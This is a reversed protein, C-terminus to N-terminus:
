QAPYRAVFRRLAATTKERLTEILDTLFLEAVACIGPATNESNGAVNLVRINRQLVWEAIYGVDDRDIVLIGSERLVHVRHVIVDGFLRDYKNIANLTCIEGPSQFNVAIRLTADSDRVNAYTRAAYSASAHEQMGYERIYEPRKGDLTLCGKPLWGGTAVGLLKAARLAAIDVGTQGGSVVRELVIREPIM